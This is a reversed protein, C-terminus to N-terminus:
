KKFLLLQEKCERHGQLLQLLSGWEHVYCYNKLVYNSLLQLYTTLYALCSASSAM